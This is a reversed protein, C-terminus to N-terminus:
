GRGVRRKLTRYTTTINVGEVRIRLDRPEGCVDDQCTSCQATM